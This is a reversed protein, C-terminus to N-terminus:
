KKERLRNKELGGRREVGGGFSSAEAKQGSGRFDGCGEAREMRGSGVGGPLSLTKQGQTERSYKMVSPPAVCVTSGLDNM